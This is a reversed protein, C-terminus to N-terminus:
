ITRPVITCGFPSPLDFDTNTIAEPLDHFLRAMEPGSKLCRESNPELLRGAADLHTHHRLCTFMDAVARASEEARAYATLAVAPVGGSPRM